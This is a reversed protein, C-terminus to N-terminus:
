RPGSSGRTEPESGRPLDKVKTTHGDRQAGGIQGQNPQDNQTLPSNDPTNSPRNM